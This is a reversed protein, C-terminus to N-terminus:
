STRSAVENELTHPRPCPDAILENGRSINERAFTIPNEPIKAGM